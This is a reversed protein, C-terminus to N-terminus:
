THIGALTVTVGFLLAVGFRGGERLNLSSFYDVPLGM